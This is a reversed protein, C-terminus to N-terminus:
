GLLAMKEFSKVVPPERKKGREELSDWLVGDAGVPREAAGEAQPTAEATKETQFVEKISGDCLVVVDRMAQAVAAAQERMKRRMLGEVLRQVEENVRNVREILREISNMLYEEEYVSGKKGRARKREERRRNKSTKRTTTTNITSTRNTYRTMFTGGFTSTESPALSVNDPIDLSDIGDFFTLPDEAKKQRLERLRPVQAGLQGKCDALLETMSALGEILGVDVVDELLEPQQQLSILRIADSFYYGKCFVRAATRIDHIYDWYITAASFFDKTEVLGEALATALLSIEAAPLPVLVASSLSEQWLNAARYAESAEAYSDLYEYAIGAEKFRNQKSLYDAYLRMIETLRTPQYKFLALADSYLAHKQVYAKLEDLTELAYLHTLAKSYRGLKDDIEFERRFRPM